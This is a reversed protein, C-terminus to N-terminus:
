QHTHQENRWTAIPDAAPQAPNQGYADANGQERTIANKMRYEEEKEASM